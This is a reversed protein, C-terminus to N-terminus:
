RPNSQVLFEHHRMSHVDTRPSLSPYQSLAQAVDNYTRNVDHYEQPASLSLPPTLSAEIPRNRTNVADDSGPPACKDLRQVALQPHATPGGHHRTHTTHHSHHSHDSHHPTDTNDNCPWPPGTGPQPAQLGLGSFGGQPLERTGQRAMVVSCSPPTIAQHGLSGRFGWELGAAQGPAQKAAQRPETLRPASRTM